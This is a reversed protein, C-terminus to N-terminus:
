AVLDAREDELHGRLTALGRASYAKVAGESIGLAAATEEVSRDELYRMTVTQRQRPPLTAVARRIDLRISTVRSDEDPAVEAPVLAPLHRQRRADQRWRSALRNDVARDLYARPHQVHDWRRHMEVFVEAVVDEALARDRTKRIARAVAGRHAQHWFEELEM